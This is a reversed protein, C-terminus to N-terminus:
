IKKKEFDDSSEELEKQSKIMEEGIYKYFSTILSCSRQM